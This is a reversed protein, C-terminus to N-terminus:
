RICTLLLISYICFPYILNIFFSKGTHSSDTEVDKDKTKEKQKAHYIPNEAELKGKNSTILNNCTSTVFFPNDVMQPKNENTELIRRQKKKFELYM